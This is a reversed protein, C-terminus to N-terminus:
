DRWMEIPAEGDWLGTARWEVYLPLMDAIACPDTLAPYNGTVFAHVDEPRYPTQRRDLEACVAAILTNPHVANWAQTVSLLRQELRALWTPEHSLKIEAITDKPVHLPRDAVTDRACLPKAPEDRMSWTASCKPCRVMGAGESPAVLKRQCEPCAVITDMDHSRYGIAPRPARTRAPQAVDDLGVFGRAEVVAVYDPLPGQWRYLLPRYESSTWIHSRHCSVRGQSIEILWNGLGDVAILKGLAEEGGLLVDESTCPALQYLKFLVSSGVPCHTSVMVADRM